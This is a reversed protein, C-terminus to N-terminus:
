VGIMRHNICPAQAMGGLRAAESRSNGEYVAAISLLRRVQGGDQSRAAVARVADADFDERLPISAM